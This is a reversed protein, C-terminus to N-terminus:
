SATRRVRPRFTFIHIRNAPTLYSYHSSSMPTRVAIDLSLAEVCEGKDFRALMAVTELTIATVVLRAEPDAADLCELAQELIHPLDRGGGGVFIRDPAPLSPMTALIDGMTLSLNPVGLRAANVEINSCRSPFQEVACVKLEKQLLAAELGVSGSGAGLDWLVGQSPLRLCSLVVPRVYRNTLCHNEFCFKEDELGLPLPRPRHGCPMLVLISTPSTRMAAAEALTCIHIHENETDLNEALVCERNACGPDFDCFKRALMSATLPLGAYIIATRAQLVRWPQIASHHACFLEADSWVIGTKHCLAQFATIGPHFTITFPLKAMDQLSHLNWTESIVSILSSGLGNYLSDGTSLIAIKAGQEALRAASLLVSRPAPLLSHLEAQIGTLQAFVKDSAYIHEYKKCAELVHVSTRTGCSYVDLSGPDSPATEPSHLSPYDHPM